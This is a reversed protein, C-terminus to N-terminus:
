FKHVQKGTIGFEALVGQKGAVASEMAPPGCIWVKVKGDGLNRSDCRAIAEQLVSKNIYGKKFKQEDGLSPSKPAAEPGSVSYTVQLRGPFDKEL